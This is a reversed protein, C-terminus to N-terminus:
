LRSSAQVSDACCHQSVWRWMSAFTSALVQPVLYFTGTSPLEFDERSMGARPVLPPSFATTLGQMLYLRESYKRQADAGLAEFLESSVFYDVGGLLSGQTM